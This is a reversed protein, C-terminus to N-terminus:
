ARKFKSIKGNSGVYYFSGEYFVIGETADAGHIQIFKERIPKLDQSWTSPYNKLTGDDNLDASASGPWLKESHYAWDEDVVFNADITKLTNSELNGGQTFTFFENTM